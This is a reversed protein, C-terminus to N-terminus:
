TNLTKSEYLYKENIKHKVKVYDSKGFLLM